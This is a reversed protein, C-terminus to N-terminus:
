GIEQSREKVKEMDISYYIDKRKKLFGKSFLSNISNKAVSENVKLNHAVQSPMIEGVEFILEFIKKILPPLEIYALVKDFHMYEIPARDKLDAYPVNCLPHPKQMDKIPDIIYPYRGEKTYLFLRIEIPIVGNRMDDWVESLKKLKPDYQRPIEEAHHYKSKTKISIPVFFDSMYARVMVKENKPVKANRWKDLSTPDYDFTKSVGKGGKEMIEKTPRSFAWNGDLNPKLFKIKVKELHEELYLAELLSPYEVGNVFYELSALYNVKENYWEFMRKRLQKLAYEDCEEEPAFELCRELREKVVEEVEDVM